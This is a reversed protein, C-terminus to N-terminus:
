VTVVVKGCVRGVELDRMAETVRTLPVRRDIVPALKRADSLAALDGLGACHEHTTHMIFRQKGFPNLALARLNRGFGGTLDGGSEGGVFVLRGTETMSRRLRVLPTNGGIDMILDYTQAGDSFDERTYDIVHDAGIARVTDVKSTRCVGTVEAGLAKAIQVMFTGVGGSAGIILVREGERVGGARLAQLATLGSVGLAAAQEFSLSAPKHALKDERACAYEAFSGRGLGFVLDGARFRTVGDGVEVVTGALDLGPVPNNPASFGFGMVRMLYPRGTMLHWTGRDLAAAHVRVLVEGAKPQPRPITGLQLVETSGYGTQIIAQMTM